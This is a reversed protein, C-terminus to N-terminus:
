PKAGLTATRGTLWGSLVLRRLARQVRGWGRGARWLVCVLYRVHLRASADDTNLGSDSRSAAARVFSGSSATYRQASPPFFLFFLVVKGYCRCMHNM